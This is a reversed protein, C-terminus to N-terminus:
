ILLQLLEKSEKAIERDSSDLLERKINEKLQDRFRSVTTSLTSENVDHRVAAERFPTGTTLIEKLANFLHSKGSETFDKQLESFANDLHDLAWRLAFIEDPSKPAPHWSAVEEYKTELISLAVKPHQNGRKIAKKAKLHDFRFKKIAGIIFSRLKRCRSSDAKGILDKILLHEMFGQTLDEADEHKVGYEFRIFCYIPARYLECIESLAEEREKTSSDPDRARAILSWRTSPFGIAQNEKPNDKESM